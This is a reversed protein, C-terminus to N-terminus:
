EARFHQNPDRKRMGSRLRLAVAALLLVVIVLLGVLWPADSSGHNKAAAQAAPAWFLLVAAVGLTTLLIRM